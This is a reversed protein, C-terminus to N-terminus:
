ERRIIKVIQALVADTEVRFLARILTLHIHAFFALVLPSPWFILLPTPAVWCVIVLPRVWGPLEDSQSETKREHM